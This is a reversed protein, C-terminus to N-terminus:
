DVQASRYTGGPPVIVCLCGFLEIPLDESYRKRLESLLLYYGLREALFGVARIQFKGYRRIRDGRRTVFERGLKELGELVPRVWATPYIGSECGGPIFIQETAFRQADKLPLIGMEVAMSVYDFLDIGYHAEIYQGVVGQKFTIPFGILFDFGARPEIEERPIKSAQEVEVDFYFDSGPSRRGIETKVIIKRHSFIGTLDTRGAADIAKPIVYNGAAGYAYPRMKDWFSDLASIHAGRRPNPHYDGIGIVFDALADPVLPAEHTICFVRLRQAEKGEDHHVNDLNKARRFFKMM